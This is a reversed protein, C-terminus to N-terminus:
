PQSEIEVDVPPNAIVTGSSIIGDQGMLSVTVPPRALVVGTALFGDNGGVSVSVPPRAIVIGTSIEGDNGGVSVSVPPRAVVTGAPVVGNNGGLSLSVPPRAAVQLFPTSGPNLPDSGATVETEDNWDDGDTDAILPGTGQEFERRNVLGDLDPDEDGDLVGDDDSDNDAPDTGLVLIEQSNTVGDSDNDEDGDLIGDGDTDALSSNLGLGAELEDPLGDGDNDTFDFSRFTSTFADTMANGALDKVSPGIVIQYNGPSLPAAFTLTARFINEDYTLTGGPAALDDVSGHMGDMGAEFLQFAAPVVTTPDLAESFRASVVSTQGVLAGRRPTVSRVRPPSMDTGITIERTESLVFNGGTDSARVQLTLTPQDVLRPAILSVEFPFNGDTAQKNGDVHFEVNRVQIDDTVNVSVRYPMGEEVLSPADLLQIVPPQGQSDYPIYNIVQMGNNHDAAYALGNYISVARAIGPTEFTTLFQNTQTPSSVDYISINHPGDFSFNNGVAAVGIGSGNDVIQKWGFEPNNSTALPTPNQPDVLSFTNYGKGHTTYAFNGGVFLRTNPTAVFPSAASNLPPMSEAFRDLAYLRDNTLAYLYDGQVALDQIAGSLRTRGVEEASLIDVWVVDGNSLGAYAAGGAAAVAQVVGSLVIQDTIESSPPDSLDIVALGANGDAVVATNGSIAVRQATGPTNVQAIVVPNMGNFVNFVAVGAQSDAIVVLDNGTAVDVATGPTDATAIIGTITPLGDLPNTGQQVEAGDPVGDGDTDPNGTETGLVVEASDMLQDQDTDEAPHPSADLEARTAFAMRPLSYPSANGFNPVMPSVADTIPDYFILHVLEGDAPKFIEYQGFPKTKGRLYLVGAPRAIEAMYYVPYPREAIANGGELYFPSAAFANEIQTKASDLYALADGGAISDMQAILNNVLSVTQPPIHTAGGALFDVALPHLADVVGHFTMNLQTLTPDSLAGKTLDSDGKQGGKKPDPKPKGNMYMLWMILMMLAAFAAAGGWTKESEDPKPDNGKPFGQKWLSIFQHEYGAKLDMLYALQFDSVSVIEAGAIGKGDNPTPNDPPSPCPPPPDDPPPPAFHWGPALIGVGPDTCVMTGDQSVTMSGVNEFEGIDHNFSFLARKSGPAAPQGTQPDPLNPLCLPLPTDFNTGGDTQVTILIPPMMFDPLSGPMRDPPVPAIGVMGGRTGDDAYLSDPPVIVQAGAFEPHEALVQDPFPIMTEQTASVPRLTGPIVLPLYVNGINAERGPLSDWAKGVFPYYYGEPYSTTITVGDILAGTVTRGDIHVFFKGAPAPELRFNGLADTDAFLTNEMGDVSIRVGELPINLPNTAGKPTALESAFVRGCVATGPLTTLTLTDFDIFEVGGPFGDRDVDVLLGRENKLKGGDVKVRIRASPPLPDNYFLTVTQKDPSVHLRTGLLAGGFEAFVSDGNVTSMDLPGSFRLITERTIAIDTENKLPSTSDMRTVLGRWSLSLLFLDIYTTEQDGDLDGVSLGQHGEIVQIVADAGINQARAPLPLILLTLILVRSVCRYLPVRAARNM